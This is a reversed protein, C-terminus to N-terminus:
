VKYALENLARSNFSLHLFTMSIRVFALELIRVFAVGGNSSILACGHYESAILVFLNIHDGKLM